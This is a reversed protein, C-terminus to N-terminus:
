KHLAIVSARHVAAVYASKDNNEVRLYLRTGVTRSLGRPANSFMFDARNYPTAQCSFEFNEGGINVQYDKHGVQYAAGLVTCPASEALFNYDKFGRLKGFPDYDKKTYITNRFIMQNTAESATPESMSIVSTPKM